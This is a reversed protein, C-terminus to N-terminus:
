LPLRKVVKIFEQCGLDQVLHADLLDLVANSEDECGGRGVKHGELLLLSGLLGSLPSGQM